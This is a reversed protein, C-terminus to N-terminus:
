RKGAATQILSDLKARDMAALVDVRYRPRRAGFEAQTNNAEDGIDLTGAFAPNWGFEDAGDYSTPVVVTDGPHIDKASAIKSKGIGRWRLVSRGRDRKEEKTEEIAIGEVDAIEQNQDRLWRRVAAVPMGLAETAVPPALEVTKEWSDEDGNKLDARWVVQVDAAELAQRGHLFPAVDPDPSPTPNTQVWLELHAPFLLPGAESAANVLALDPCHKVVVDMAAVGFDVPEHQKLFEWTHGTAAGYVVDEKRRVIVAKAVRDNGLRNLRGFRQRLSDLPAAETVLADFDINAGVEVTQTAVVYLLGGVARGKKAAIREKYQVWLKQACYPRNRGILLVAEAGKLNRLQEFIARAAGVTNAIVGVVSVGDGASLEKAATVMEDELKKKPERLEAPKSANWRKGM